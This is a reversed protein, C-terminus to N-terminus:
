GSRQCLPVACQPTLSRSMRPKSSLSASTPTTTDPDTANLVFRWPTTTSVSSLIEVDEMVPECADPVRASGPVLLLSPARRQPSHRGGHRQHLADLQLPLPGLGQVRNHRRHSRRHPRRLTYYRLCGAEYRSYTRRAREALCPTHVQRRRYRLAVCQGFWRQYSRWRRLLLPLRRDSCGYVAHSAVLGM